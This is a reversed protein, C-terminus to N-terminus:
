AALIKSLVEQQQPSLAKVVEQLQPGFNRFLSKLLEVMQVRLEQTISENNVCGSFINVIQPIFPTIAEHSLQVLKIIAGYAPKAEEFDERIPLAAFYLPLLQALPVAAPASIIMRGISGCANDRVVNDTEAFMATLGELAVPFFKVTAEGCYHCLIGFLFASNSRTPGHKDKLGALSWQAFEDLKTMLGMAISNAIDALSGMAEQRYTAEIEDKLYTSISQLLPFFNVFLPGYAKALNVICDCCAEFLLLDEAKVSEVDDYDEDDINQCSSTGNLINLLAPAIKAMYADIGPSGCTAVVHSISECVRAVNNKDDDEFMPLIIQFCADIFQRTTDPLPQENPPLGPMAPRAPPHTTHVVSIFNELPNICNRRLDPHVHTATITLTALCRELFPLFFGKTAVSIVALASLAQNKEDIFSTPAQYNLPDLEDDEEEEGDFDLGDDEQAEAPAEEVGDTSEIGALLLPVVVPLFDKFEEKYAEAVNAFFSYTYERMEEGNPLALGRVALDMFYPLLPRFNEKGVALAVIGACETARSRLLLQDHHAITMLQKMMEMVPTYYTMFNQKACSAVASIGSIAMEQIDKNGKRLLDILRTMLMDSYNMVREDLNELYAVLSYCAREQVEADNENMARLLLPIVQEHYETIDSFHESFQSLCLCAVKRVRVDDDAFGKYLYPLLAGLKEQLADACNRVLVTLASISAKRAHPNPSQVYEHVYKMVPEVVKSSKLYKCMSDIVQASYKHASIDYESDSSEEEQSEPEAGMPFIVALIPEVLNNHTITKPKFQAVWQIFTLAEIRVNLDIEPRKGVELVFNMIM